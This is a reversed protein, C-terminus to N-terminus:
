SAEEQDDDESGAGILLMDEQCIAAFEPFWGIRDGKAPEWFEQAAIARIVEVAKADAAALTAEDWDALQESVKSTDKPLVIYGLRVPQEIGLGRVLHRYLPLQLDIWDEKHRHAKDPTEGKDGTKYDFVITQGSTEHVDIRDIRGYLGVESGPLRIAKDKKIDCETFRIRWGKARWQAQWRAFAALRGRIQEVQLRVAALVNTGYQEAVVADLIANLGAAIAEPNTADALRTDDAFRKLVTHLLSGFSNAALEEAADALAELELQHKLYYRYPCALYDRLETVRLSEIARPLPVPRPIPFESRARGARLSGALEVPPVPQPAPGFFQRAREAMESGECAFLLRSPVLPDREIGRRGAILKLRRSAALLNLAYNDRAYRRNNDELGLAGRLRDPLFLDASGTSPVIGENMGSVIAGPADDLPLELWGLVEVAGAIAPPPLRNGALREVVLRLAAAGSAAPALAGTLTAFTEVCESVQRCFEWVLRDAELSRDLQRDGYVDQLLAVIPEAWKGLPRVKGALPGFLEKLRRSVDLAGRSKKSPSPRDHDIQAPLQDNFFRDLASLYDEGAGQAILWRGIDPHRALAAEQSYQGLELYDATLELLQVPGSRALPRGAGLRATLGAETLRQELYPLVTEDPAGVTIEDAALQQNWEALAALVADAQEAPGDVVAIQSREIAVPMERWRETVLCGHEDFDGGHKPPAFILATVRDAVQDLMARQNRDMDVTGVLVIDRDTRCEAHEIAHLRATQQDWQELSDLIDLYRQQVGRLAQWREAERFDEVGAGRREVDAFKLGDAALETHVRALMKALALWGALDDAAPPEKILLEIEVPPSQRIAGVWALQQTLDDALPRKIEYLLEPLTGVTVIRPPVLIAQREEALQVILELLRRGARAGPLAVVVPELNWVDNRAYAEWLYGAAVALAPRKWDIYLTRIPM